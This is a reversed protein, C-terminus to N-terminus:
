EVKVSIRTIRNYGYGKRNWEEEQPQIHGSSDKARAMITYEGKKEVNWQYKWSIWAYPHIADPCITANCWNVGGDLSLEVQTIVGEGTYAIGKILHVGTDLLSMDLPQQIISNVKIKTVPRKGMDDEKHPYYMYDVSQFPGEFKHGIVSIKKLWKVSAMGYWQPVILRFPYGHKYPIPRGNLEYAIMTDPHLANDIPLSRKYSFSGEMDTRPGIDHGEFVVETASAKIGAMHLLYILPVGRWTGQHIAGEKWQDGYAKPDFYARRNGSCELVMTLTKSPMSLLNMFHFVMPRSVEGDIPLLFSRCTLMPYFFHNRRYLYEQPTVMQGLFHVPSEQNEPVLMRTTLYPKIFPGKGYIM